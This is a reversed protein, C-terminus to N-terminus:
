GAHYHITTLTATDRIEIATGATEDGTNKRSLRVSQRRTQDDVISETQQAAGEDSHLMAANPGEATTGLLMAAGDRATRQAVGEDSHPM